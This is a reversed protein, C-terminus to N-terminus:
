ERSFVVDTPGSVVDKYPRNLLPLLQFDFEVTPFADIAALEKEYIRNRVMESPDSLGIWVRLVDAERQVLVCSVQPLTGFDEGLAHELPVSKLEAMKTMAASGAVPTTSGSHFHIRHDEATRKPLSCALGLILATEGVLM